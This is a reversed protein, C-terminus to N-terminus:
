SMTQDLIGCLSSSIISARDITSSEMDIDMDIDIPPGGTGKGGEAELTGVTGDGDVGVVGEAGIEVGDELLGAKETSGVPLKSGVVVPLGVITTGGVLSGEAKGVM